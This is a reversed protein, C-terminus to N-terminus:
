ENLGYSVLCQQHHREDEEIDTKREEVFIQMKDPKADLLVTAGVVTIVNLRLSIVELNPCEPLRAAIVAAGADNVENEDLYCERVKPLAALRAMLGAMLDPGLINGSIDLKELLTLGRLAKLFHPFPYFGLSTHSLTLTRLHTLVEVCRCSIEFGGPSLSVHSLHLNTAQRGTCVLRMFHPWDSEKMMCKELVFEQLCEEPFNVAKQFLVLVKTNMDKENAAIYSVLEKRLSTTDTGPVFTVIHAFSRCSVTNVLFPSSKSSIRSCSCPAGM